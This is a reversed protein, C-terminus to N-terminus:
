FSEVRITAFNHQSNCASVAALFIIFFPKGLILNSPKGKASGSPLKRSHKTSLKPFHPLLGTKKRGTVAGSVDNGDDEAGSNISINTSSVYSSGMESTMSDHSETSKTSHGGRKKLSTHLKHPHGEDESGDFYGSEIRRKEHKEHMNRFGDITEIFYLM